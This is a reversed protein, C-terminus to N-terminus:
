GTLDCQNAALYITRGSRAQMSNMKKVAAQLTANWSKHSFMPLAGINKSSSFSVHLPDLSKVGMLTSLLSLTSVVQVTSGLQGFPYKM